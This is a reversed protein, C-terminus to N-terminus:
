VNKGGSFFIVGLRVVSGALGHACLCRENIFKLDYM